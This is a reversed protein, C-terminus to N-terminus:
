IDNGVDTRGHKGEIMQNSDPLALKKKWNELSKVDLSFDPGGSFDTMAAQGKIQLFQHKSNSSVEDM